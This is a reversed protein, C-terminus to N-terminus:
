LMVVPSSMLIQEMSYTMKYMTGEQQCRDDSMCLTSIGPALTLFTSNLNVIFVQKEATEHM